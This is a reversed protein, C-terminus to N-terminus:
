VVFLSVGVLTSWHTPHWGAFRSAALKIGPWPAQRPQLNPGPQPVHVLCGISTEKECQHKKRGEWERERQRFIFLYFRKLITFFHTPKLFSWNVNCIAFQEWQKSFYLWDIFWDSYSYPINLSRSSSNWSQSFCPFLLYTQAM